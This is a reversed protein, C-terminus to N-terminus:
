ASETTAYNADSAIECTNDGYALRIFGSEGWSTGWSNRVKWYGQTTDIGVAQVCHDVSNGCTSLIGGTYSSWSSADVCISLPGTSQVYAAMTSEDKAGSAVNTYGKTKVVYKSSDSQCTGTVGAKGSTYPYDSDKEVGGKAYDFANETFGGNCGGGFVYSTCSTIQQASLIVEDGTKRMYDSEIQETASFAWCSGCYGQDKVPTTYVGTWDQSASEGALLPKLGRALTKNKDAGSPKYNLYSTKFEKETMDTFKTIGHVATGTEKANRQDITKLNQVFVEFRHAEEEMTAYAKSHEAKFNEFLYKQSEPKASYLTASASGLLALALALKM